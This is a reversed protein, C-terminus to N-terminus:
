NENCHRAVFRTGAYSGTTCSNHSNCKCLAPHAIRGCKLAKLITCADCRVRMYIFIDLVSGENLVLNNIQSRKSENEFFSTQAQLNHAHIESDTCSLRKVMFVSDIDKITVADVGFM